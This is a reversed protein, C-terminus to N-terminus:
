VSFPFKIFDQSKILNLLDRSHLKARHHHNSFPLPNQLTSAVKLPLMVIGSLKSLLLTFNFFTFAVFFCWLPYFNNKFVGYSLLCFVMVM